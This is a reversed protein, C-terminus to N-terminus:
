KEHFDHLYERFVIYNLLENMQFVIHVDYLYDPPSFDIEDKNIIMNGRPDFKELFDEKKISEKSFYHVAFERDMDHYLLPVPIISNHACYQCEFRNIEGDFLDQKLEPNLTVNISNHIVQEQKQGCNPCTVEKTDSISM